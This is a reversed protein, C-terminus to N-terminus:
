PLPRVLAQATNKVVQATLPEYQTVSAAQWLVRGSRTDAFVMMQSGSTVPASTAGFTLAQLMARGVQTGTPVKRGAVVVMVITDAGFAQGLRSLAAAAAAKTGSSSRM